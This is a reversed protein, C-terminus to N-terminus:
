REERELRREIKERNYESKRKDKSLIHFSTARTEFKSPEDTYEVECQKYKM